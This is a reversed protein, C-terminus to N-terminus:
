VEVENAVQAAAPHGIARLQKSNGRDLGSPTTPPERDEIAVQM